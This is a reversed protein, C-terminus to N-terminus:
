FPKRLTALPSRPSRLTVSAIERLLPAEAGVIWAIWKGNGFYGEHLVGKALILKQVKIVSYKLKNDFNKPM